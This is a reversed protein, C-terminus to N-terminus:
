HRHVRYITPQKRRDDRKSCNPGDQELGLDVRSNVNGLDGDVTVAETHGADIRNRAAPEVPM